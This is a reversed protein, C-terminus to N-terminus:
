DEKSKSKHQPHEQKITYTWLEKGKVNYVTIVMKRNHWPGKVDILGFNRETVLTGPLRLKNVENVAQVDPRSNFPSLTIDYITPEGQKKLMDLETHHRDGTIFVVNYIKQQYIWDIIAQREKNFGFNTYTEYVGAPNLFQGGIVIVKYSANSFVLARKLWELQAKGLQTKYGDTKMLDPDRYYRNDLLFFDVDNWNFFTTTGPNGDVGYSPNAWFLKFVKLSIQKFPFSGDSNNPGFDHDDWIAYNFSNALLPQFQKLQRDHTYRYVMGTWSNWENQRLYVNDGLWLVFDPHKKYITTYIDYGGGYPKGPRDWKPDNIYTGSSSAFTFEPPDTRYRWIAKTKFQTPFNLKVKKNNIFVDYKYKTDPKIQDLKLHATFAGNKNTMVKDSWLTDTINGNKDLPYYAIQVTAAAKTQLWIMTEHMTLYGLMPGSLLLNEQAKVWLFSFLVSLALILKKM